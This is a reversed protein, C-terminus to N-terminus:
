VSVQAIAPWSSCLLFVLLFSSNKMAGVKFPERYTGLELNSIESPGGGWPLGLNWARVTLSNSSSKSNSALDTFAKAGSRLGPSTPDPAPMRPAQLVLLPCAPLARLTARQ